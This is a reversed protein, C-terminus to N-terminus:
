KETVDRLAALGHLLKLKGRNRRTLNTFHEKTQDDMTEDEGLFVVMHISPPDLDADRFHLKVGNRVMAEIDAPTYPETRPFQAGPIGPSGGTAQPPTAGTVDRVLQGFDIVVKPPLGKDARAANEKRLWERTKQVAADWAARDKPDVTGPTGPTGPNKALDKRYKALDEESPSRGMRRYGGSICFVTGAQWEIAKQIAKSYHANDRAAIPDLDGALDPSEGAHGALGLEDYDRNLPDLWEVAMRLNSPMAPVPERSFALLREGEYLLINFQTGRNLGGLIVGIEDKVKDYAFMGGKEDVLMERTADIIFVIRKGGGSIGFFNVDSTSKTDGQFSLGMGAEAPGALVNTVDVINSRNDMEPISVPSMALAGIVNPTAGSAASPAAESIRNVRTPVLDETFKATEVTAVMQPPLMRPVSIVVLGVLVTLVLHTLLAVTFAALKQATQSQRTLAKAVAASELRFDGDYDKWKRAETERLTKVDLLTPVGSTTASKAPVKVKAPERKQLQGSREPKASRSDPLHVSLPEAKAFGTVESTTAALPVSNLLSKVQEAPDALMPTSPPLDVVPAVDAIEPMEEEDGLMAFGAAGHVMLTHVRFQLEHPLPSEDPSERILRRAVDMDGRRVANEVLRIRISWDEPSKALLTEWEDSRVANM